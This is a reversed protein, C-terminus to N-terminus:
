QLQEALAGKVTAAAAARLLSPVVGAYPGSAAVESDNWDRPSAAYVELTGIPGRALEVPV